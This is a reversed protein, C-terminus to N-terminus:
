MYVAMAMTMCMAQSSSEQGEELMKRKESRKKNEKEMGGIQLNHEVTRQISVPVCAYVYLVQIDCVIMWREKYM